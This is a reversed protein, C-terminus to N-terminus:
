MKEQLEKIRQKRRQSKIELVTEPRLLGPEIDYTRQLYEIEAKKEFYKVARQVANL